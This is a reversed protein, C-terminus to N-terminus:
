FLNQQKPQVLHLEVKYVGLHVLEFYAQELLDRLNANPIRRQVFQCNDREFVNRPVESDKREWSIMRIIVGPM